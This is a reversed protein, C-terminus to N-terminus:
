GAEEALDLLAGNDKDSWGKETPTHVAHQPLRDRLPAHTGQDFLVRM